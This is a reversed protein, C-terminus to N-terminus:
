SGVFLLSDLRCKERLTPLRLNWSEGQFISNKRVIAVSLVDIMDFM